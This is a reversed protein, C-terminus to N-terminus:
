KCCRGQNDTPILDRSFVVVEVLDTPETTATTLKIESATPCSLVPDNSSNSVQKKLHNTKSQPNVTSLTHQTSTKNSSLVTDDEIDSDPSSLYNNPTQDVPVTSTKPTIHSATQSTPDDQEGKDSDSDNSVINKDQSVEENAHISKSTSSAASTKPKIGTTKEDDSSSVWSSDSIFAPTLATKQPNKLSTPKSVTKKKQTLTKNNNGVASHALTSSTKTTPDNDTQQIDDDDSSDPSLTIQPNVTSPKALKSTSKNATVKLSSKSISKSKKNNEQAEEEDSSIWDSSSLVTQTPPTVTSTTTTVTRQINDDDSSDPSLTIKPNVTTSPKALKSTSKNATVKLSSKRKKNNEQAEEEDSSLWDSSLSPVTQTPPTVTPTAATTSIENSSSDPKGVISQAASTENGATDSSATHSGSQFHIKRKQHVHQVTKSEKSTEKEKQKLDTNTTQTQTKKSKKLHKTKHKSKEKKSPIDKLSKDNIKSSKIEKTKSSTKSSKDKDDPKSSNACKTTSNDKTKQKKSPPPNVADSSPQLSDDETETVNVHVEENTSITPSTVMLSLPVDSLTEGSNITHSPRISNEQHDTAEPRSQHTNSSISHLPINVHQTSLSNSDINHPTLYNDTTGSKQASEKPQGLTSTGM